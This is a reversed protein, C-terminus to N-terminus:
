AKITELNRGSSSRESFVTNEKLWILFDRVNPTKNEGTSSTTSNSKSSTKSLSAM